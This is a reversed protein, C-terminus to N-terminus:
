PEINAIRGPPFTLRKGFRPENDIVCVCTVYYKESYRGETEMRREFVFALSIEGCAEVLVLADLQRKPLLAQM